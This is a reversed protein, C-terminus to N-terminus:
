EQKRDIFIFKTFLCFIQLALADSASDLCPLRLAQGVVAFGAPLYWDPESRLRALFIFILDIMVMVAM